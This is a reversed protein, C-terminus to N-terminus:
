PIIIEVKDEILIESPNDIEITQAAFFISEIKQISGEVEEIKVAEDEKFNGRGHYSSM